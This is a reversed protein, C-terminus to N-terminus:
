FEGKLISMYVMCLSSSMYVMCLSSVGTFTLIRWASFLHKL